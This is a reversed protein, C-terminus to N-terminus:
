LPWERDGKGPTEASPVLQHVLLIGRERDMDVLYTNPALSIGATVLARRAASVADDGGADFPVTRFVGEVTRRQVIHRWLVAAMIGCDALVLGPLRAFRRLWSLRPQFRLNGAKVTVTAATAALAAAGVGVLIEEGTLKAALLLYLGLLAAWWGLWSRVAGVSAV